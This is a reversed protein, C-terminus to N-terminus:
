RVPTAAPKVTAGAAPKTPSVAAPTATIAAPAMAKPAGQKAPGAVALLKLEKMVAAPLPRKVTKGGATLGVVEGSCGGGGPCKPGKCCNYTCTKGGCKKECGTVTAGSVGGTTAGGGCVNQMQQETIKTASAELSASVLFGLAILYISLLRM